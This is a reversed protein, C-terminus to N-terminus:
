ETMDARAWKQLLVAGTAVIGPVLWWLVVGLQWVIKPLGLHGGAWEFGRWVLPASALGLLWSIGTIAFLLVRSPNHSSLEEARLRVRFKTREALNRPLDINMSRFATLTRATQAQRACCAECEALHAALWAHEEVSIGEIRDKTILQHARAHLDESM